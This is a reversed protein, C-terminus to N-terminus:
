HLHQTRRGIAESEHPPTLNDKEGVFLIVPVGIRRYDHETCQLRQRAMAKVVHSPTLANWVLQQHLLGESANQDRM